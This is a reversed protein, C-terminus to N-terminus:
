IYLYKEINTNESFTHVAAMQNRNSDQPFSAESGCKSCVSNVPDKWFTSGPEDAEKNIEDTNM